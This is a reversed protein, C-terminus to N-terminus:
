AMAAEDGHFCTHVCEQRPMREFERMMGEGDVKTFRTYLIHAPRIKAPAGDVFPMPLNVFFLRLEVDFDVWEQVIVSSIQALKQESLARLGEALEAQGKFKRVDMAEWSFGLKAVGTTQELPGPAPTGMTAARMQQLCNLARIGQEAAARPSRGVLGRGVKTAAPVKLDPMLCLHCMWDKSLLMKYVHSHHPFRSIVGCGEMQAMLNLTADCHIFGPATPNDQFDVPWLHYLGVKNRARLKTSLFPAHIRELDRADRVFVTLVEYTPGLRPWVQEEFLTILYRNSVCSGASGWGGSGDMVPDVEEEGGWRVVLFSVDPVGPHPLGNMDCRRVQMPHNSEFFLDSDPHMRDGDRTYWFPHQYECLIGTERVRKEDFSAPDFDRHVRARQWGDTWGHRPSCSGCMPNEVPIWLEDTNNMQFRYFVWVEDGRKFPEMASLGAQKFADLAQRPQTKMTSYESSYRVPQHRRARPLRTKAVVRGCGCSEALALAIAIAYRLRWHLADGLSSQRLASM